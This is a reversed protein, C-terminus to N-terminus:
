LAFKEELLMYDIIIRFSFGNNCLWDSILVTILLIYLKWNTLKNNKCWCFFLVVGNKLYIGIYNGGIYYTFDIPPKQM